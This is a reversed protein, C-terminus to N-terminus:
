NIMTPCIHGRELEYRMGCKNCTVFRSSEKGCSHIENIQLIKKCIPCQRIQPMIIQNM